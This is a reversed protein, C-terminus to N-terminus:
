PNTRGGDVVRVTSPDGPGTQGTCAGLLKPSLLVADLKAAPDAKRWETCSTTALGVADLAAYAELLQRHVLALQPKSLNAGSLLGAGVRVAEVYRGRRVDAVLQPIRTEAVRQADRAQGGAQTRVLAGARLASRKGQDTLGLDTLPVLLVEGQRLRARKLSNYSAVVWAKDRRGLYRYALSQTTDGRSAVYRLNYPIVIERGVAPPIWPQGENLQALVDGRKSGGLLEAAISHWTEGPLVQHHAVAPLELLMGPVVGSSGRVDLSNVAVIVRELQMRGYMGEAIQAVTEGKRVVHPFASSVASATLLAALVLM